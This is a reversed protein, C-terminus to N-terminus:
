PKESIILTTLKVINTDDFSLYTLLSVSIVLLCVLNSQRCLSVSEVWVIEIRKDHTDNM